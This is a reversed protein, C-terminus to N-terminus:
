KEGQYKKNLYIRTFSGFYGTGKKFGLPELIESAYKEQYKVVAEQTISGFYGTAKIDSRSWVGEKILIEQLAKVDEGRVGLGLNQNFTFQEQEEEKEEISLSLRKLYDKTKSGFYGTGSELNFPKLIDQSYKEQFKALATKTISGFYGTAKVEAEWVGENILIKQLDEVEEGFSGLRLDKDWIYPYVMLDRRLDSLRGYLSIKRVNVEGKFLDAIEQSVEELNEKTLEVPYGYNSFWHYDKYSYPIDPFEVEKKTIIFLNIEARSEKIESAGSILIPYYLFDSDFHYILPKISEKAPSATIVDFVFYKIDRKLYNAVGEKFELSVEKIELGKEKAFDEIWNLFYDLDNVKVVTVDHAGIIKEFTIEIGSASAGVGEGKGLFQSRVEKLKENMIEVLKEFSDFSGEEIDAPNSPLPIIRLVTATANSEIDNSLIIIEKQGSWAIIANQASQNLHVRPPWIMMGGDALILVPFFLISFSILLYFYVKKM